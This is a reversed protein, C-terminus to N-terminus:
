CLLLREDKWIPDPERTTREAQAWDPVADLRSQEYWAKQQRILENRADYLRDPPYLMGALPNNSGIM